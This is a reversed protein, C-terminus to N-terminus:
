KVERIYDVPNMVKMKLELRKAYKIIDDDCTLFFKSNAYHACALHIADKSFLRTKEQFNKALHYIEKNPDIKIECLTSLRYVELKREMFPCVINEDEHMFSWVLRVEKKEAKAFIEECALAELQIRIQRPDDFGRQFCSYELYILDM